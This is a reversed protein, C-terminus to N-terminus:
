AHDVETGPYAVGSQNCLRVMGHESIRDARYLAHTAPRWALTGKPLVQGTIACEHENHMKVPHWVARQNHRKIATDENELAVLGPGLVAGVRYTGRFGM